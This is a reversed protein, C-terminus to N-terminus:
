GIKKLDTDDKTFKMKTFGYVIGATILTIIGGGIPASGGGVLEGGDDAGGGPDPPAQAFSLSTWVVLAIISIIKRTKKM